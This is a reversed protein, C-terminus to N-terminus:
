VGGPGTLELDLHDLRLKVVWCALFRHPVSREQSIVSRHSLYLNEILRPPLSSLVNAFWVMFVLHCLHATNTNAFWVMFSTFYFTRCLTTENDALLVLLKFWLGWILCLM